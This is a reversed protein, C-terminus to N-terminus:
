FIGFFAKIKIWPRYISVHLMYEQILKPILLILLILVLRKVSLGFKKFYRNRAAWFLFWNEFLNPFIFLFIRINTIEFLIVGLLRYLFLFISTGKALKEKWNLSVMFAIGLFYMDFIKDGLDYMGEPVKYMIGVAGFIDALAVDLADLVFAAITGWLPWKFITLPVILRLIIILVLGSGINFANGIFILSFSFLVMLLIFVAKWNKYWSEIKQRVKM